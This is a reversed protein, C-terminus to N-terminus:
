RSDQHRDAIDTGQGSREDNGLDEGSRAVGDSRRLENTPHWHARKVVLLRGSPLPAALIALRTSCNRNM